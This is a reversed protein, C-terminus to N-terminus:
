DQISPTNQDLLIYTGDEFRIALREEVEGDRFGGGIGGVEEIGIARSEARERTKYYSNDTDGDCYSKIVVAFVTVVEAEGRKGIPPPKRSPAM